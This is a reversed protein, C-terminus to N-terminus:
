RRRVQVREVQHRGLDIHIEAPLPKRLPVRWNSGPQTFFFYLVIDKKDGDDINISEINGPFIPKTVAVSPDAPDMFMKGVMEQYRETATMKDVTRIMMYLTNGDNTQGTSNVYIRTTSACGVAGLALTAALGYWALVRSARDM